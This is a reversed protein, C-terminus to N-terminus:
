ASELNNMVENLNGLLRAAIQRKVLRAEKGELQGMNIDKKLDSFEMSLLVVADEAERYFERAFDILRKIAKEVNGAAVFDKIENRRNLIDNPAVAM